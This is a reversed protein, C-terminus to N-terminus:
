ARKSFRVQREKKLIENWVALDTDRVGRGPGYFSALASKLRRPDGEAEDDNVFVKAPESTPPGLEFNGITAM